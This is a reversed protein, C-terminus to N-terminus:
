LTVAENTQTIQAIYAGWSGQADAFENDWSALLAKCETRSIGLLDYQAQSSAIFASIDFNTPHEAAYANFDTLTHDPFRSALKHLIEWQAPSIVQAQETKTEQVAPLTTEPAASAAACTLVASIILLRQIQM